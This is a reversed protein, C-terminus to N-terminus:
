QASLVNWFSHFCCSYAMYTTRVWSNVTVHFLCVHMLIRLCGHFISPLSPTPRYQPCDRGWLILPLKRSSSATSRGPDQLIVLCKQPQFLSPLPVKASSVSALPFLSFAHNKVTGQAFHLSIRAPSFSFRSLTGKSPLSPLSTVNPQYPSCSCVSRPLRAKPVFLWILRESYIWPAVLHPCISFHYICVQTWIEARDRVLQTIRTLEKVGRRMELIPFIM